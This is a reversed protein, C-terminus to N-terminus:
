RLHNELYEGGVNNPFVLGLVRLPLLQGLRYSFVEKNATSFLSSPYVFSICEATALDCYLDETLFLHPPYYIATPACITRFKDETQNKVNFRFFAVGSQFVVQYSNMLHVAIRTM